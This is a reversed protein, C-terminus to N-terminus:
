TNGQGNLHQCSECVVNVVGLVIGVVFVRTLIVTTQTAGDVLTDLQGDIFLRAHLIVNCVLVHVDHGTSEMDSAEESLADLETSPVLTVVPLFVQVLRKSKQTGSEM